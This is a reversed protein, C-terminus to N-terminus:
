FCSNEGFFQIFIGHLIFCFFATNLLNGNVGLGGVLILEWNEDMYNGIEHQRLWVLLWYGVWNSPEM